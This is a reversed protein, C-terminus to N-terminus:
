LVIVRKHKMAAQASIIPYVVYQLYMDFWMTFWGQYLDHYQEISKRAKYDDIYLIM